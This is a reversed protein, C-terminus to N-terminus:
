KNKKYFHIIWIIAGLIAISVVVMIEYRKVKNLILELSTGFIFGATSVVIAWVLASITNLITFKVSNVRSMGIVFPTITRFGYLFRFSLVLLNQHKELLLQTRDAREKWSPKKELFSRGKKRGIYFFFQDVSLSGLFSFFIVWKLQLYGQHALFGAIIVVTEGELLTGFLLVGYGYTEILHEFLM